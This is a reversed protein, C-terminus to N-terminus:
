RITDVLYDKVEKTKSNFSISILVIGKDKYNENNLYSQYYKKDKMQDMGVEANKDLKIEIIYIYKSTIAVIDSRGKFSREEVRIDLSKPGCHLLAVIGIQFTNEQYKQAIELPFVCVLTM